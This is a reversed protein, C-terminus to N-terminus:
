RRTSASVPGQTLLDVAAALGPDTAESFLDWRSPVVVDPVIGTSEWTGTEDGAPRFADTAIRVRWGEPLDWSYLQEVNGLTTTGM